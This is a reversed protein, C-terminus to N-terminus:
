KDKEGLPIKRSGLSAAQCFFEAIMGVPQFCTGKEAPKKRVRSRFLRRM